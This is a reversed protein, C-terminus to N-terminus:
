KSSRVPLVSFTDFRQLAVEKRGYSFDFLAAYWNLWLRGSWAESSWQLNNSLRILKTIRIPSVLVKNELSLTTNYNNSSEYLTKLEDITPLRWDNYGGGKYKECYKKANKWNVSIGNDNSAWMLGTTTDIVTGNKYAVFPGNRDIEGPHKRAINTKEQKKTQTKQNKWYTIQKKAYTRMKDDENSFPNQESIDKLFIKFAILKDEPSLFEDKEIKKLQIFKHKKKNQWSTWKNVARKKDQAKKLLDDFSEEKDDPLKYKEFQIKQNEDNSYKNIFFFQGDEDGVGHLFKSIPKQNSNRTVMKEIEYGLQKVSLYPFSNNKLQKLFYFAFISHGEKGEDSVVENGGSTLINRSPRSYYKYFYDDNIDTEIDRHKRIFNGSFCSDSVLFIHRVKRKDLAAITQYVTNNQLFTTKNKTAEATVWYGIEFTNDFWGHGAYYIFVNDNKKVRLTILDEFKKIINERTADYDTLLIINDKKFFYKNELINAVAKADNVATNLDPHNEYKNIGIIVAHNVGSYQTQLTKGDYSSEVTIARINRGEAFSFFFIFILSINLIKYRM